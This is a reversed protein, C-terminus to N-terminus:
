GPVTFSRSVVARNDALDLLTLKLRYSGAALRGLAVRRVGKQLGRPLLNRVHAFRGAARRQITGSLVAPESLRVIAVRTLGERVVSFALLRPKARDVPAADAPGLDAWFAGAILLRPALGCDAAALDVPSAYTGDQEEWVLITGDPSWSPEPFPTFHRGPGIACRPVPPASVGTAAYLQLTRNTDVDNGQLPTRLAALRDGSRSLEGNGV